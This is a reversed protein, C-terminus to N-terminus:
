SGLFYFREFGKEGYRGGMKRANGMLGGGFRRVVVVRGEGGGLGQSWGVLGYGGKGKLCWGETLLCRRGKAVEM